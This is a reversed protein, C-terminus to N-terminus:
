FLLFLRKRQYSPSFLVALAFSVSAYCSPERQLDVAMLGLPAVSVWMGRHGQSLTCQRLLVWAEHWSTCTM